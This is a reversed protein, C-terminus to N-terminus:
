TPVGNGHTGAGSCWQPSVRRRPINEGNSTVRIHVQKSQQSTTYIRYHHVYTSRYLLSTHWGRMDTNGILTKNRKSAIINPYWFFKLPVKLVYLDICHCEM